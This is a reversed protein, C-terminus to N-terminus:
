FAGYRALDYLSILVFWAALSAALIFTLRIITM